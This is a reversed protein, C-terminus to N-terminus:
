CTGHWGACQRSIQLVGLNRRKEHPPSLLGARAQALDRVRIREDRRIQMFSKRIKSSRSKSRTRSLERM